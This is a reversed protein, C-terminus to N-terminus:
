GNESVGLTSGSRVAGCADLRVGVCFGKRVRGVEGAGREDRRVMIQVVGEVHLALAAARRRGLLV